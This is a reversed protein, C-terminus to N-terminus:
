IQRLSAGRAPRPESATSTTDRLVSGIARLLPEAKLKTEALESAPDSLAIIAGGVGITTTREGVVATRIVIALEAAGDVSFWGLAGAYVGRPAGELARLIEMTKKKPAGTMSGGPFAAAVCDLADHEPRLTGTIRSVLQHVTAYSEVVM